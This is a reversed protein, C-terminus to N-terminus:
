TASGPEFNCATVLKYIEVWEAGCFACTVNCSLDHQGGGYDSAGLDASKCVPCEWFKKRLAATLEGDTM